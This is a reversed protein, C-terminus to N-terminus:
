AAAAQAAASKHALAVLVHAHETDIPHIRTCQLGAQRIWSQLTAIPNGPEAIALEDYEEIVILRGGAVLARALETLAAVPRAADALVRDITATDFSPGAFPLRYMDGRQFECHSLGAGHVNTRAVRLARSSIDVGVAREAQAGLLTLWHGSGTGVDLLTKIPMAALERLVVADIESSDITVVEGHLEVTALQGRATIVQTLRQIDRVIAADHEDVLALLQHVADRQRGAPPVRYYVRQQERFRDILGAECLLKLHRSVRPQSQEVVECLEGVTLEARALVALLRFRTPEAAARLAELGKGFSRLM